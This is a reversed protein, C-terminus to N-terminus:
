HGEGDKGCNRFIGLILTFTRALVQFHIICGERGENESKKEVENKPSFLPVFKWSFFGTSSLCLMHQDAFLLLFSLLTSNNTQM